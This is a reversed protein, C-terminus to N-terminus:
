PNPDEPHHRSYAHITGAVADFTFTTGMGMRGWVASSQDLLTDYVADAEMRCARALEALTVSHGQSHPRRAINTLTNAIREVSRSVPM